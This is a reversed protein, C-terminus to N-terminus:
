PYGYGYGYSSGSGAGPPPPESPETPYGGSGSGAGPPLPESPPDYPPPDSPPDTPPDYPPMVPPCPDPPLDGNYVVPNQQPDCDCGRYDCQGVLTSNDTVRWPEDLSQRNTFAGCDIGISNPDGPTKCVCPETGEIVISGGSFFRNNSLAGAALGWDNYPIGHTWTFIRVERTHVWKYGISRKCVEGIVDVNTEGGVSHMMGLPGGFAAGPMFHDISQPPTVSPICRTAAILSGGARLFAWPVSAGSSVFAGGINGAISAVAFACGTGDVDYNWQGAPANSPYSGTAHFWQRPEDLQPDTHCRQTDSIMGSTDPMRLACADAPAKAACTATGHVREKGVPCPQKGDLAATVSPSPPPQTATYTSISQTGFWDPYLFYQKPSDIEVKARVWKTGYGDTANTPYHGNAVLWQYQPLIAPYDDCLGDALCQAVKSCSTTAQIRSDPNVASFAYDVCRYTTYPMSMGSMDRLYRTEEYCTGRCIGWEPYDLESTVTGLEPAIPQDDSTCGMIAAAAIMTAFVPVHVSVRM